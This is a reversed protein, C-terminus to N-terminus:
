INKENNRREIAALVKEAEIETIYPRKFHKYTAELNGGKERIRDLIQKSAITAMKSVPEDRKGEEPYEDLDKTGSDIAFLGCLAYKRAYSSTAGTLQGGRLYQTEKPENAYASADCGVVGDSLRATAKVYVRDGVAVVEDTLILSLGNLLPKIEELIQECNRYRYQSTKFVKPAKLEKQIRALEKNLLEARIM